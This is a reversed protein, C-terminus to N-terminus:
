GVYIMHADHFVIDRGCQFSTTDGALTVWFMSAYMLISGWWIEINTTYTRFIPSILLSMGQMGSLRMEHSNHSGKGKEFSPM